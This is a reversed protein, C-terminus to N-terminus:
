AAAAEIASENLMFASPDADVQEDQDHLHLVINSDDPTADESDASMTIM